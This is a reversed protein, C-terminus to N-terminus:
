RSAQPVKTIQEDVFSRLSPLVFTEEPHEIEQFPALLDSAALYRREDSFARSQLIDRLEPPVTENKKYTGRGSFDRRLQADPRDCFTRLVGRSVASPIKIALVPVVVPWGDSTSTGCLIGGLVDRRGDPLAFEITVFDTANNQKRGCSIFTLVKPSMSWIGRSILDSTLLTGFTRGAKDAQGTHDLVFLDQRIKGDGTDKRILAYLGSQRGARESGPLVHNAFSGYRTARHKTLINMCDARVKSFSDSEAIGSKENHIESYLFDLVAAAFEWSCRITSDAGYDKQMTKSLASEGAAKAFHELDQLFKNVPKGLSRAGHEVINGVSITM